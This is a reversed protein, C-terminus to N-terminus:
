GSIWESDNLCESVSDCPLLSARHQEKRRFTEARAVRM